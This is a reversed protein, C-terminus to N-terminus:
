CLGACHVWTTHVLGARTWRVSKERENRYRVNSTPAPPTFPWLRGWLQFWIPVMDVEVVVVVEVEAVLFMNSAGACTRLARCHLTHSWSMYLCWETHTFFVYWFCWTVNHLTHLDSMNFKASMERVSKRQEKSHCTSLWHLKINQRKTNSQMPSNEATHRSFPWHLQTNKDKHIERSQAIRPQTVLLHDFSVRGLDLADMAMKVARRAM